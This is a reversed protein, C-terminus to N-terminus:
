RVTTSSVDATRRPRTAWNLIQQDDAGTRNMVRTSAARTFRAESVPLRAVLRRTQISAAVDVLWGVFSHRRWKDPDPGDIGARRVFRNLEPASLLV